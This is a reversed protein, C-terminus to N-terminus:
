ENFNYDVLKWIYEFSGNSSEGFMIKENIKIMGVQPKIWYDYSYSYISQHFTRILTYTDTYINGYVTIDEIGAVYTTDYSDNLNTWWNDEEYPQIILQTAFFGIILISDSNSNIFQYNWIHESNDEEIIVYEWVKYEVDGIISDGIITVRVNNTDFENEILYHWQYGIENPFYEIEIVPAVPKETEEKKCSFLLVLLFVFWIISIKFSKM